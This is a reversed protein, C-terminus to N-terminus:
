AIPFLLCVLLDVLMSPHAQKHGVLADIILPMTESLAVRRVGQFLSRTVGPTGTGWNPFGQHVNYVTRCREAKDVIVTCTNM